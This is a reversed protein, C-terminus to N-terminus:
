AMVPSRHNFIHVLPVGAPESPQSDDVVVQVGLARLAVASAWTMLQAAWDSRRLLVAPLQLGYLLFGLAAWALRALVRAPLLLPECAAQAAVTAAKTAAATSAGRSRDPLHRPLPLRRWTGNVQTTM